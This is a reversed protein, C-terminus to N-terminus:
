KQPVFLINTAINIHHGNGSYDKFDGNLPWWAVINNLFPPPEGIGGSYLMQIDSASLSTNYVQVNAISGNLADNPMQTDYAGIWYTTISTAIQQGFNYNASQQQGDGYVYDVLNGSADVTTAVMYWVGYKLNAVSAYGACGVNMSNSVYICACPDFSASWSTAGRGTYIGCVSSVISDGSEGPLPPKNNIWGVFTFKNLLPMNSASMLSYSFGGAVYKPLVGSCQGVLSVSVPNRVIQCAGPPTRVSFSSSSFVGLQFMIGLIVSIILISWGYTMLYEMASQSKINKVMESVM